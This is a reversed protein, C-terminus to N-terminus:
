AGSGRRAFLGDALNGAGRTVGPVAFFYGGGFPTIYEELAEGDLRKQVAVFGDDLSRQFCVFLLGQDLQGAADFGASYNFGRRLIRNRQTQPTRPNALRIHGDLRFTSGGPDLSFDPSDTENQMGVPAGTIKDRGIITEQTRLPTRDWFEVRNRILRVVQYSGGVTWTPEDTGPGIWVLDNMSKEDASDPNATGDKFGLLNRGSARGPGLQNPTNFGPLLWKLVLSSRTARMVRRLVHNCMAPTTACIQILLDGHLRSVDPKDNPFEPMQILQRPKLDALGYRGDFLSAGVAVTITLDAAPPDVGVILNDTPPKLPDLAPVALGSMLDRIEKTLTEFMAQLAPADSAVVDFSVIIASEQAPTVIGVQHAGEFAYRRRMPSVDAPLAHSTDTTSCAALVSGGVSASLVATASTGLFTRRTVPNM